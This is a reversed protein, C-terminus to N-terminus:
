TGTLAPPARDRDHATRGPSLPSPAPRAPNRVAASPVATGHVTTAAHHDSPSPREGLHDLRARAAQATCGTLCADDARPGSDPQQIGPAAASAAYAGPATAHATATATAPAPAPVLALLITILAALVTALRHGGHPVTRPAPHM